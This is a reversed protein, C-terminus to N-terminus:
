RDAINELIRRLTSNVSTKHQESAQPTWFSDPSGQLKGDVLQVREIQVDFLESALQLRKLRVHAPECARIPSAPPTARKSVKWQTVDTRTNHYYPCSGRDVAFHEQWHAVTEVVAPQMGEGNLVGIAEDVTRTGHRFAQATAEPSTGM